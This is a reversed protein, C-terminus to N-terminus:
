IEKAAYSKEIEQNTQNLKLQKEEIERLFKEL